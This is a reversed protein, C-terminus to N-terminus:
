QAPEWWSLHVVENHDQCFAGGLEEITERTVDLACEYHGHAVLDQINVEMGCNKRCRSHIADLTEMDHQCHIMRSVADLKERFENWPALVDDIITPQNM